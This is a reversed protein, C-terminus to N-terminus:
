RTCTVPTKRAFPGVTGVAGGILNGIGFALGLGLGIKVRNRVRFNFSIFVVGSYLDVCNYKYTIKSLSPPPNIVSAWLRFRFNKKKPGNPRLVNKYLHICFSFHM